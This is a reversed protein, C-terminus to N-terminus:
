DEGKLLLFVEALAPHEALQRLKEASEQLEIADRAAVKIGIADGELNHPCEVRLGLEKVLIRELEGLREKVRKTEPYRLGELFFRVKKQKEKRSLGNEELVSAVEPSALIQSLEKQERACTEDVLTLLGRLTNASPNIAEVLSILAGQDREQLGQLRELLVGSVRKEEIYRQLRADMM